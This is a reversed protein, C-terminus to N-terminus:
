VACVSDTRNHHFLKGCQRSDSLAKLDGEQVVVRGWGVEVIATTGFVDVGFLTEWNPPIGSGMLAQLAYAKVAISVPLDVVVTVGFAVVVAGVSVLLECQNHHVYSIQKM